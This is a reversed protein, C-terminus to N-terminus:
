AAAMETPWGAIARVGGNAAVLRAPLGREELWAPAADGLLIAATAATNADVCTAAAVSVTRWVVRAPLGTSPEVIHHVPEGARRWTRVTTSSTALGGAEISVITAPSDSAHHDAIGVVWCGPAPGAVAIDGGLNVLVGLEPAVAAARAAARDAAWAKATAGLDIRAHPPLQVTMAARDTLVRQWGAAPVARAAPGDPALDDFDRDYGIADMTPGVTPDVLGGTASAARLAVEVADFLLPSVRLPRGGSRGLRMLESDDRFRSCAADIAALEDEVASRAAVLSRPDTVLVTATTGLARWSAKMAM